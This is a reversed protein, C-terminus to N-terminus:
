VGALSKQLGNGLETTDISRLSARHKGLEGHTPIIYVTDNTNHSDERIM